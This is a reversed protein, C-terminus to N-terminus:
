NTNANGNIKFIANANQRTIKLVEGVSIKKIDAIKQAIHIIMASNCQKGRHPVPALYPCDTELVISTLPISQVCEQLKKSNAFTVVGGIGIYLGNQTIWQADQASGSYCHLIGFPKHTKLVEYMASHAERDHILLPLNHKKALQIHALFMKLQEDKPVPWHYDLGCEGIAVVKENQLLQEIQLLEAQWDGKFVSTTSADEDILSQPHIGVATYFWPYMSALQLSENASNLDAACDVVNCVNNEEIHKLVEHLNEKYKTSTYHTHTDFIMNKGKYSIKNQICLFHLM